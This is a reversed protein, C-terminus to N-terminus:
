VTFNVEQSLFSYIEKKASRRNHGRIKTHQTKNENMKLHKGNGKSKKKAGTLPNRKIEVIKKRTKNRNIELTMGRHDSFISQIANLFIHM